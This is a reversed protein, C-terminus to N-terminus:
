RKGKRAAKRAAVEDELSLGVAVPASVGLMSSGGQYMDGLQIVQEETLADGGYSFTEAVQRVTLETWEGRRGGEARSRSLVAELAAPLERAVFRGPAGVLAEVTTKLLGAVREATDYSPKNKGSLLQSVASGSLGIEKGLRAGNDDFRERKLRAMEDVVIKAKDPPLGRNGPQKTARPPTMVPAYPM